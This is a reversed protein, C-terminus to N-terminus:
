LLRHLCFGSTCKNPSSQATIGKSRFFVTGLSCGHHSLVILKMVELCKLGFVHRIPAFTDHQVVTEIPSLTVGGM